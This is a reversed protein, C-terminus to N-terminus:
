RTMSSRDIRPDRARRSPLDLQLRPMRWRVATPLLLRYIQPIESLPINFWCTSAVMPLVAGDVANLTPIALAKAADVERNSGPFVVVAAQM